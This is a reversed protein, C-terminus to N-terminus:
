REGGSETNRRNLNAVGGEIQGERRSAGAQRWNGM